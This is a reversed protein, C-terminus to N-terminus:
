FGCLDRIGKRQRDTFGSLSDIEKKLDARKGRAALDSIRVAGTAKIGLKLLKGFLDRRLELKKRFDGRWQKGDRGRDAPRPEEELGYAYDHLREVDGDSMGLGRLASVTLPVNRRRHDMILGRIEPTIVPIKRLSDEDCRSIDIRSAPDPRERNRRGERLSAFTRSRFTLTVSLSHTMGLVPHYRFGYSVAARGWLMTVAGSGTGTEHQYGAAVSLFPFIRASVSVSNMYGFATGSMGYCIDLGDVPMLAIGANWQPCALDRRSRLLMSVINDQSFALRLWIFPEVVAAVSGDWIGRFSGVGDTNITVTSWTAGAGFSFVSSPRIGGAIVFIQEHYGEIGFRSWAGQVAATNGGFGARVTWSSMAELSYPRSGACSLYGFGVFPFLAPNSVTDPLSPDQIAAGAPFLSAPSSERYEFAAVPSIAIKAALLLPIM